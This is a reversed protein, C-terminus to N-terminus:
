HWSLSCFRKQLNSVFCFNWTTKSTKPRPLSREKTTIVSFLKTLTSSHIIFFLLLNVLSFLANIPVLYSIIKDNGIFFM